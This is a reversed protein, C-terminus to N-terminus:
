GQAETSDQAEELILADLEDGAIKDADDLRGTFEKVRAESEAIKKDITDMQDNAEKGAQKVDAALQEADKLLDDIQSQAALSITPQTPQAQDM